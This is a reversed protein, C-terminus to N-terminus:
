DWMSFSFKYFEFITWSLLRSTWNIVQRSIMLIVNWFLPRLRFSQTFSFFGDRGECKNSLTIAEVLFFIGKWNRRCFQKWIRRLWRRILENLAAEAMGPNAHLKARIWMKPTIFSSDLTRRMVITRYSTPILLPSISSRFMETAIDMLFSLHQFKRFVFNNTNPLCFIVVAQKLWVGGSLIKRYTAINLPVAPSQQLVRICHAQSRHERLTLYINIYCYASIVLYLSIVTYAIILTIFYKLFSVATSFISM